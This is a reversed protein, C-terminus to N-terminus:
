VLGTTTPYPFSHICRTLNNDYYQNSKIAATHFHIQSSQIEFNDFDSARYVRIDCIM